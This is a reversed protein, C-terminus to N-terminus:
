FKFRIAAILKHDDYEFDKFSSEKRFYKYGVTGSLYPRPSWNLSINSEYFHDNLPRTFVATPDEPDTRTITGDKTDYGVSVGSQFDIVRNVQWTLNAGYYYILRNVSLTSTVNALDEQLGRAAWLTVATKYTLRQSVAAKFQYANEDKAKDNNHYERWRYGFELGAKTNPTIKRNVGARVLDSDSSYVGREFFDVTEFEYDAYVDTKPTLQYAIKPNFAHSQSSYSHTLLTNERVPFYFVHYRQTYILHTKATMEYEIRALADDNYTTVKSSEASRLETREGIAYATDPKFSNYFDIKLKPFQYKLESMVSHNFRSLKGNEVYEVYSLDYVTRLFDHSGKRVFGVTPTYTFIEDDKEGNRTLFINSDYVTSFNFGTLWRWTEPNEGGTDGTPGEFAASHFSQAFSKESYGASFSQDLGSGFEEPRAAFSATSFLLYSFAAFISLVFGRTLIKLM